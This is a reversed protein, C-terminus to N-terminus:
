KSLEKKKGDIEIDVQKSQKMTKILEENEKNLRENEHQSKKISKNLEETEASLKKHEKFIGIWIKAQGALPSQPYVKVLRKFYDVSKEYDRKPYGYHAYILGINFLSEDGPPINGHSSLVKQNERLAGDYDGQDLLKQATVLHERSERKTKMETLTVCGALSIGIICAISIYLYKWIRNRKRGL